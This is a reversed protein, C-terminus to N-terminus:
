SKNKLLCERVYRKAQNSNRTIRDIVARNGGYKVHYIRGSLDLVSGAATWFSAASRVNNALVRSVAYQSKM